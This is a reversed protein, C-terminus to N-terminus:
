YVMGYMEFFKSLPMDVDGEVLPEGDLDDDVLTLLSVTGDRGCDANAVLSSKKSTANSDVVKWGGIPKSTKASSSADAKTSETETATETAAKVEDETLAEGDVDGDVDIDRGAGTGTGAAQQKNNEIPTGEFRAELEQIFEQTYVSWHAWAALVKQVARRLKNMSMRGQIQDNENGMSGFVKPAMQEVADRYRFANRVGPQQSNFLVDSLLYLRAIRTDVSVRVDILSDRLMNAIEVASGSKEFCFVMAECISERSACLRCLLKSFKEKEYATLKVVNTAGFKVHELQRGTKVTAANINEVAKKREEKKQLIDLERKQLRDEELQAAERDVLPPPIWWRGGRFMQFPKTNWANNMDGQTFTYVRWRYFIREDQITESNCAGAIPMIQEHHDPPFLFAFQPNNSERDMIKRELISGDKSVFSAVTTIFKLRNPDQPVVVNIATPLDQTPVFEPKHQQQQQQQQQQIAASTEPQFHSSQNAPSSAENNETANSQHGASSKSSSSRTHEKNSSASSRSSHSDKGNNDGDSTRARRRIPAIPVGGTGRKVTKKVNKGWRLMMRRGTNLPDSEGYADMADQADERTMFCVFGTNRGRAREEDTRPWMIKVSYLDGSTTQTQYKHTTNQGVIPPHISPHIISYFICRLERM